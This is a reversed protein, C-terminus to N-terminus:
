LFKTRLFLTLSTARELQLKYRSIVDPRFSIGHRSVKNKQDPRPNQLRMFAHDTSSDTKLVLPASLQMSVKCQLYKSNQYTVSRLFWLAM